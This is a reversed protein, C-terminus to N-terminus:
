DDKIVRQKTIKPKGKPGMEGEVIVTSRGQRTQYRFFITDNYQTTQVNDFNNRLNQIAEKQNQNPGPKRGSGQGGKLKIFDLPTIM